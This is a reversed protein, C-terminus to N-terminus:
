LLNRLERLTLGLERALRKQVSPGPFEHGNLIKSLTTPNIGIREALAAYTKFGARQIEAKIAFRVQPAIPGIEKHQMEEM